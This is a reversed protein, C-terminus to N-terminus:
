IHTQLTEAERHTHMDTHTHTNTHTDGGTQRETHLSLCDSLSVAIYIENGDDTRSNTTYLWLLRVTTVKRIVM